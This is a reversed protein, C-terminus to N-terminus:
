RELRVRDTPGAGCRARAREVEETDLVVATGDIAAQGTDCRECQNRRTVRNGTYAAGEQHTRRHVVAGQHEVPAIGDTSGQAEMRADGVVRRLPPIEIARTRDAGTGVSAEQEHCTPTRVAEAHELQAAIRGLWQCHRQTGGRAIRQDLAQILRQVHDRQRRRPVDLMDIDGTGVVVRDRGEGKVANRARQGMDAAHHVPDVPHLSQGIDFVESGARLSPRVDIRHGATAGADGLEVAIGSRTHQAIACAEGLGCEARRQM